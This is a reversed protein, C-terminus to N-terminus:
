PCPNSAPKNPFMNTTANAAWAAHSDVFLYNGQVPKNLVHPANVQAAGVCYSKATQSYINDTYSREAVLVIETSNALYTCSFRSGAIWYDTPAGDGGCSISYSRITGSSRALRDTPCRFIPIATYNNTVLAVDWVLNSSSGFINNQASPFKMNNDALFNHMGLGIQRLNSSCTVRRAKERMGNLAPLLLGALILIIAIVTLLEMLTFGRQPSIQKRM